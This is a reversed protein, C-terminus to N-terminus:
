LISFLFHHKVVEQSTNSVPRVGIHTRTKTKLRNLFITPQRTFTVRGKYPSLVMQVVNWRFPPPNRWVHPSFPPSLKSLLCPQVTNSKWLMETSKMSKEKLNICRRQRRHKEEFQKPSDFNICNNMFMLQLAGYFSNPYCIESLKTKSSTYLIMNLYKQYRLMSM